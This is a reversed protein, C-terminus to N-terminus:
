KVARYFYQGGLPLWGLKRELPILWQFLKTRPFFITFRPKLKRFGASILLEKTYRSSLLRANKDFPCTKVIYRTLPNNPNHEFLYLRGGRRLVRNIETLLELHHSFRVHHLVAAIFVIDFSENEFPIKLGDYSRFSCGNIKKTSAEQISKESTDIGELHWSPFQQNFFFEVAGDGCGVDLLHLEADEEFREVETVKQKAFYLSDAGSWAINKTHLSRYDNAFENFDDFSRENM